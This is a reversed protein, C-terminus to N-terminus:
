HPGPSNAPSRRELAVGKPAVLWRKLSAEAFEGPIAVSGEMMGLREVPLKLSAGTFEGPIALEAQRM